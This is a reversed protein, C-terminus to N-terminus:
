CKSTKQSNETGYNLGMRKTSQYITDTYTLENVHLFRVCLRLYARCISSFHARSNHFLYVDFLIKVREDDWSNQRLDCLHVFDLAYFSIFNVSLTFRLFFVMASLYLFQTRHKKEKCKNNFSVDCKALSLSYCFSFFFLFFFGWRFLVFNNPANAKKMNVKAYFFRFFIFFHSDFFFVFGLVCRM